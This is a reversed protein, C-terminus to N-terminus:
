VYLLPVMLLVDVGTGILLADYGRRLLNRGTAVAKADLPRM